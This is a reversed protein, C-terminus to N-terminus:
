LHTLLSLWKATNHLLVSNCDDREFTLEGLKLDGQSINPEGPRNAGHHSLSFFCFPGKEQLKTENM